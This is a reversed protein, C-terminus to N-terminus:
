NLDDLLWKVSSELRSWSSSLVSIRSGVPQSMFRQHAANLTTTPLTVNFDFPLAVHRYEVMASQIYGYGRQYVQDSDPQFPKITLGGSSRKVVIDKTPHINLSLVFFPKECGDVIYAVRIGEGWTHVMSNKKNQSLGRMPMKLLVAVTKKKGSALMDIKFKQGNGDLESDYKWNPIEHHVSKFYADIPSHLIGTKESSRGSNGDLAQAGCEELAEILNSKETASM